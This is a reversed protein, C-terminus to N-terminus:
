GHTIGYIKSRAARALIAEQSNKFNDLFLICIKQTNASSMDTRHTWRNKSRTQLEDGVLLVMYKTSTDVDASVAAGVRVLPLM